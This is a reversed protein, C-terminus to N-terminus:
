VHKRESVFWKPCLPMDGQIPIFCIYAPVLLHKFFYWAGVFVYLYIFGGLNVAFDVLQCSAETNLHKMGKLKAYHKCVLGGWITAAADGKRIFSRKSFLFPSVGSLDVFNIIGVRPCYVFLKMAEDIFLKM